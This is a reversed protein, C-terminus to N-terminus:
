GVKHAQGKSWLSDGTMVSSHFPCSKATWGTQGKQLAAKQKIVLQFVYSLCRCGSSIPRNGHVVAQAAIKRSERM